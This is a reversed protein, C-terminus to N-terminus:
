LSVIWIGKSSGLVRSEHFHKALLGKTIWVTELRSDTIIDHYAVCVKGKYADTVQFNEKSETMYKDLRVTETQETM